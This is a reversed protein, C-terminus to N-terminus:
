PKQEADVTLAARGIFQALAKVQNPSLLVRDGVEKCGEDNFQTIGVYGGTKDFRVPQGFNSAVGPVTKSYKTESM